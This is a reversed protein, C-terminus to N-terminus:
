SHFLPFFFILDIVGAVEGRGDLVECYGGVWCHGWGEATGGCGREAAFGGGARDTVPSDGVAHELDQVRSDLTGLDAAHPLDRGDHLLHQPTLHADQLPHQATRQPLQRPDLHPTEM